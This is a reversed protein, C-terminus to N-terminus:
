LPGPLRVGYDASQAQAACDGPYRPKEKEASRKETSIIKQQQESKRRNNNASEEKPREKSIRQQDREEPL